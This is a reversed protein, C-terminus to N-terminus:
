GRQLLHVPNPHTDTSQEGGTGAVLRRKHHNTNDAFTPVHSTLRAAGEM